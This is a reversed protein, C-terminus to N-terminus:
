FSYRFGLAYTTIEDNFDAGLNIGMNETIEFLANGFFAVDDGSDIDTYRLGGGLELWNFVQARVGADAFYGDSSDDNLDRIADELDGGSNIDDDDTAGFNYSGFDVDMYAGRIVLDLNNSLPTFFGLGLKLTKVDENDPILLGEDSVFTYESDTSTYGGFVFFNSSFAFSGHFGYGDGDDFDDVFNDFIDGEENGDIDQIIYDGEVFTYSIGEAAFTAVPLLLASGILTNFFLRQSRM